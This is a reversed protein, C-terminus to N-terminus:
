LTSPTQKLWRTIQALTQREQDAQMVLANQVRAAPADQRLIAVSSGVGYGGHTIFPVLTKGTLDHGTLFSRVVSPTTTGWVPFGLFVTQYSQIEAVLATLPPRYGSDREKQAQSVTAEYDEPYAAVPEIEFLDANLARRIQRAVVRTNGTRSFFAVLTRGASRQQAVSSDATLGLGATVILRAVCQLVARKTPDEPEQM